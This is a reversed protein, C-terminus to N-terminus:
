CAGEQLAATKITRWLIYADLTVSWNHLYERDLAVRQGYTTRNRGSVQWLGTMGPRVMQYMGFVDAHDRIYERDYDEGDVIPRPGVLSMDGRLVNLLQPLEDLSTRRLWRGVVTVRPDDRLKHTADWETRAAPHAQLHERLTADADLRM